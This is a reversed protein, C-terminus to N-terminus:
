NKILSNYNEKIINILYVISIIPYRIIAFISKHNLLYLKCKVAERVLWKKNTKDEVLEFETFIKGDNLLLPHGKTSNGTMRYKIAVIDYAMYLPYKKTYKYIFPGDEWLRYREDFLGIEDFIERKFYMISGSAMNRYTSMVFQNHQQQRNWSEIIRRDNRHPLYGVFKEEEDICYRSAVIVKSDTTEFRDVIKSIVSNDFFIDDGALLMIIKGTSSKIANNLNKVTGVNEENKVITFRILNDNKNQAICERIRDEPLDRSGDDTIIYEIIEYDQMLVSKITTEIDDFKNYTPTIVTVLEKNINDMM